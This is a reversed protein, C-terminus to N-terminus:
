CKDAAVAWILDVLCLANVNIFVNDFYVVLYFVVLNFLDTM